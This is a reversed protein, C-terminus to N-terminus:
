EGYGCGGWVGVKERVGWVWVRGVCGSEGWVGESGMGEGCVWVGVKDGCRERERWKLRM